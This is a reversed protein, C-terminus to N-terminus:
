GLRARRDDLRRRVEIRREPTIRRVVVRRINGEPRSTMRRDGLPGSTSTALAAPTVSQHGGARLRDVLQAVSEFDPLMEGALAPDVLAFAELFGAARSTTWTAKFFGASDTDLSRPQIQAVATHANDILEAIRERAFRYADNRM